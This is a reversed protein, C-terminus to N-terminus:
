RPVPNSESPLDHNSRLGKQTCAACYYRDTIGLATLMSGCLMTGGNTGSVHTGKGCGPAYPTRLRDLRKDGPCSAAIDRGSIHSTTGDPNSISLTQQVEDWDWGEDGEGTANGSDRVFREIGHLEAELIKEEATLM